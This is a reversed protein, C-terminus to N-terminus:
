WRRCPPPDSSTPESVAAQEGGGGSAGAGATSAAAPPPADAGTVAVVATWAAFWGLWVQSLYHKRDNLRSWGTLLSGAYAAARPLARRTARAATLWPVAAMFAHGAASNDDRLPANWRAGRTNAADTPRAAGLGYQLVWLLPLGTLMAEWNRRGWRTLRSSGHGADVAALLGWTLFWLREGFPKLWAALRDSVAGRVRRSHAADVAEDAGTHALVGALLLAGGLKLFSRREYCRRYHRGTDKLLRPGRARAQRVALVVAWATLALTLALVIETAPLQATM